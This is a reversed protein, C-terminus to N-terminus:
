LSLPSKSKADNELLSLLYNSTAPSRSRAEAFEEPGGVGERARGTFFTRFELSLMGMEPASWRKRAKTGKRSASSSERPPRSCPTPVSSIGFGWHPEGSHCPLAVAAVTRRRRGAGRDLGDEEEGAHGEGGAGAGFAAAVHQAPEGLGI